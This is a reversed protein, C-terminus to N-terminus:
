NTPCEKPLLTSDIPLGSDSCSPCLDNWYSDSNVDTLRRNGSEDCLKNRIPYYKCRGSSECLQKNKNNDEESGQKLNDDTQKCENIDDTNKM